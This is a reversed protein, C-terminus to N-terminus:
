NGAHSEEPAGEAITYIFVALNRRRTETSDLLRLSGAAANRPNKFPLEGSSIRQQN